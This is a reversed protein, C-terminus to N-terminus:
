DAAPASRMEELVKPWEQECWTAPDDWFLDPRGQTFPFASYVGAGAPPRNTQEAM